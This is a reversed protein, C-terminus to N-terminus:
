RNWESYQGWPRIDMSLMGARKGKPNVITIRFEDTDLAPTSCAYKMSKYAKNGFKDNEHTWNYNDMLVKILQDPDDNLQEETLQSWATSVEAMAESIFAIVDADVVGHFGKLPKNEPMAPDKRAYNEQEIINYM